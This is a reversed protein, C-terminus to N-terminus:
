QAKEKYKLCLFAYFTIWKDALGRKGFEWYKLKRDWQRICKFKLQMM